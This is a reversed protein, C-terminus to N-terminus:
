KDFNPKLFIKKDNINERAEELYFDIKKNKQILNKRERKKIIMINEISNKKKQVEKIKNKLYEIKNLYYRNFNADFLSFYFISPQKKRNLMKQCSLVTEHYYNEEYLISNYAWIYYDILQNLKEIKESNIEKEKLLNDRKMILENYEEEFTM